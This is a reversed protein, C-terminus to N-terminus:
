SKLLYVLYLCPFIRGIKFHWLCRGWALLWGLFLRFMERLWQECKKSFIISFLFTPSEEWIAVQACDPCGRESTDCFGSCCGGTEFSTYVGGQIHASLLLVKPPERSSQSERPSTWLRTEVVEFWVKRSAFVDRPVCNLGGRSLIRTRLCVLCSWTWLNM